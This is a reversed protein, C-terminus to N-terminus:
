PRAREDAVRRALRERATAAYRRCAQPDVVRRAAVREWLGSADPHPTVLLDCRLREITAIGREFDAVATPWAASATYRFGDASVPTQSDAYVMELCHRSECSRWSWTTSGPTHGPTLHAVLALPGVRVTDGDAVVRAVPVPAFPPLTGYQPDDPGSAGRALVAASPGSAAVAAGSARQLAAIGGAHDFHTHSNLILKVDRMRFGLARVNAEILPASEPLGGDILVHGAPSTILVASLGHTGVYWSNGHLRFPRQPANWEACSACPPTRGAARATDGQGALPAAALSVACLAGLLGRTRM